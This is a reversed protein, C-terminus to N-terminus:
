ACPGGYQPEFMCSCCVDSFDITDICADHSFIVAIISNGIVREQPRAVSGCPWGLGPGVLAAHRGLVSRMGAWPSVASTAECVVLLPSMMCGICARARMLARPRSEVVVVARSM